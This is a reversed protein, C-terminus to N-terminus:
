SGVVKWRLLHGEARNVGENILWGMVMLLVIVAMVGATDFQGQANMLLFGLGRNSAMIEGVIAGILANPVALKLGTFIWPIASPLVVKTFVDRRSAGMLRVTDILEQDVDRFGAYTNVFVLFYVVTTVLVIKPQLGIGFWLIFLPAMALKPISYFAIMFPDILRALVRNRALVFGTAIAVTGGIAFGIVMERLTIELQFWLTGDSVWRQLRAVIDSPRSVWFKDVIAIGHGPKGALFQWLLVLVVLAAIRLLWLRWGDAFTASDSEQSDVGVPLREVAGREVLVDEKLGQTTAM